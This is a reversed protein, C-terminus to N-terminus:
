GIIWISGATGPHVPHQVTERARRLFQRLINGLPLVQRVSSFLAEIIEAMEAIASGTWRWAFRMAIVESKIGYINQQLEFGAGILFGDLKFHGIM